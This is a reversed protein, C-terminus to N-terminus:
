SSLEADLVNLIRRCEGVKRSYDDSPLAQTARMSDLSLIRDLTWRQLLQLDTRNLAEIPRPTQESM